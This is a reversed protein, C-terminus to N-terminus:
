EYPIQRVEMHLDHGTKEKVQKQIMSVLELIDQTTADGTNVIFNAHMPSVEAGGVRAGKLGCQEILAGSHSGKPNRFVCGSSKEKLPQTTQRKRIIDLQTQRANECESLQFVASLIIGDMEQFCSWRYRFSMQEKEYKIVDGDFNILEVQQLLNSTEAGNAGANMFVAGGVSGPIGSAFELGSLGWRASQSGLLSFNYGSGVYLTSSDLKELFTLKNLIVLGKFGRDDFLSNSGRGVVIHRLNHDNKFRLVKQLQDVTQVEAFFDAPGGVGMTTIESLNKNTQILSNLKNRWNIM